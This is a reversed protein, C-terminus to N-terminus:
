FFHRGEDIRQCNAFEIPTLGLAKKRNPQLKDLSETRNKGIFFFDTQTAEIDQSQVLKIFTDEDKQQLGFFLYIYDFQTNEKNARYIQMGKPYDKSKLVEQMKNFFLDCNRTYNDRHRIKVAKFAVPPSTNLLNIKM